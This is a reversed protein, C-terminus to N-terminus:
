SREVKEMWHRIARAFDSLDRPAKVLHESVREPDLRLYDHVLLNRFGGLGKLRSRLAEDLVGHAALQELVDEHDEAAVGFHAALIHNGVDLAIEAGLQLGRETAWGNEMRECSPPIATLWASLGSVVEELRLLRVRISDPKLVM